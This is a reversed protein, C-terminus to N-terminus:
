VRTKKRDFVEVQKKTEAQDVMKRHIERQNFFYEYFQM